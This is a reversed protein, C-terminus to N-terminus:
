PHQGPSSTALSSASPELQLDRGPVLQLNECKPQQGYTSSSRTSEAPVFQAVGGGDGFAPVAEEGGGGGGEPAVLPVAAGGDGGGTAGSRVRSVPSLLILELSPLRGMQGNMTMGM